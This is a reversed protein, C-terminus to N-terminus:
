RGSPQHRALCLKIGWLAFLSVAFLLWTVAAGGGTGGKPEDDLILVASEALPNGDAPEFLRVLFSETREPESDDVLTIPIVAETEGIGFTVRRETGAYDAGARALGDVTRYGLELPQDASGTRRIPINLFAADEKVKLASVAFLVRGGPAGDDDIISIVSDSPDAVNGGNLTLAFTESPEANSDDLVPIFITRQEPGGSFRLRGTRAHYDSGETASGDETSYDVAIDGDGSARYVVVVIQGGNEMVAPATNLIKVVGAPGVENDRITIEAFTTDLVGNVPNSLRLRFREVGELLSDDHIPIAVTRTSIGPGFELTGVRKVYDINEGATGPVTEYDVRSNSSSPNREVTIALSTGTEDVSYANQKFSLEPVPKKGDPAQLAASLVAREGRGRCGTLIDGLGDGNLDAIAVPGPEVCNAVSKTAATISGPDEIVRVTNGRRDSAILEARGDRDLDDAALGAPAATDIHTLFGPADGPASVRWINIGDAVGVAVEPKGDGNIDASAVGVDGGLGGLASFDGAGDGRLIGTPLILDTEGDGDVDAGVLDTAGWRLADPVPRGEVFEGVATARFLTLGLDGDSAVALDAAGDGNFDHTVVAAPFAGSGAMTAFPSFAAGSGRYLHIRGARNGETVALDPYSDGNWDGAALGYPKFPVPFPHDNFGGEGDGLHVSIKGDGSSLGYMAVAADLAGDGNFDEVAIDTPDTGSLEYQVAPAFVAAAGSLPWLALLM